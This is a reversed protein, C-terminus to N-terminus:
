RAEIKEQLERIKEHLPAVADAIDDQTFRPTIHQSCNWDFAEVTILIAREATARYGEVALSAILEPRDEAEIAKAHGLLKLRRQDPYDMFFLAVRDNGAFNGISVYQRNGRFDAFGLTREDLVKVFGAPGGRHQIYPWGTESVSAMYFSDRAAIFAAERESLRDHHAPGDEARAYAKRSGMKEQLARVAPTFALEAFRHTM